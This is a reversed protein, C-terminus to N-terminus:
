SDRTIAVDFLMPVDGALSARVQDSLEEPETIHRAEVGLARALGVFDIEPQVLDMGLYQQDAMRPLPMVKGCHKLIRYQANNCIVFTVPIRQHAATWLAQIGYLAAGDGLIALAPRDPWALKVGLACGM